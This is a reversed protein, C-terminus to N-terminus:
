GSGGGPPRVSSRSSRNTQSRSGGTLQSVDDAHGMETWARDTLGTVQPEGASTQGLQVGVVYPPRAQSLVRLAEAVDKEPLGSEEALAAPDVPRAKPDAFHSALAELVPLERTEWTSM